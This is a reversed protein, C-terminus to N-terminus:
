SEPEKGARAVARLEQIVNVLTTDGVIDGDPVGDSALAELRECALEATAYAIASKRDAAGFRAEDRDSMRPRNPDPLSRELVALAADDDPTPM